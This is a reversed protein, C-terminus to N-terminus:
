EIYYISVSYINSCSLPLEVQYFIDHSGEGDNTLVHCKKLQDQEYCEVRDVIRIQTANEDLFNAAFTSLVAKAAIFECSSKSYANSSIIFCISWLLLIKKM